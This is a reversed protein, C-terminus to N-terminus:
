GSPNIEHKQYFKERQEVDIWATILGVIWASAFDTAIGGLM